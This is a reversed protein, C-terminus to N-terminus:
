RRWNNTTEYLIKFQVSFSCSLSLLYHRLYLLVVSGNDWTLTRFPDLLLFLHYPSLPHSPFSSMDHSLFCIGSPPLSCVRRALRVRVAEMDSEEGLLSFGIALWPTSLDSVAPSWIKLYAVHPLFFERPAPRRLRTDHLLINTSDRRRWVKHIVDTRILEEELEQLNGLDM